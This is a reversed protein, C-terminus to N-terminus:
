IPLQAYAGMNTSIRRLRGSKKKKVTKGGWRGNIERWVNLQMYIYVKLAGLYQTFEM